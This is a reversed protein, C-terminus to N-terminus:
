TVREKKEQDKFTPDRRITWIILESINRNFGTLTCRADIPSVFYGWFFSKGPFSQLLYKCKSPISSAKKLDYKGPFILFFFVLLM